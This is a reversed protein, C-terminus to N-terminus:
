TQYIKIRYRDWFILHKTMKVSKCFTYCKKEADLHFNNLIALDKNKADKSWFMELIQHSVNELDYEHM